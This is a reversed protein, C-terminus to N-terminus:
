KIEGEKGCSSYAWDVAKNVLNAKVTNHHIYDITAYYHREDRIFRDWYERQWFSKGEKLLGPHFGAPLESKCDARYLHRISKTSARKWSKVLDGMSWGEYTKILLHVHNPMVVYAILDYRETDFFRWGEVLIAATRSDKLLCSGYGSDLYKEIIKRKDM